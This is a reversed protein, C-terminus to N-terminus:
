NRGRARMETTSRSQADANPDVPPEDGKREFQARIYCLFLCTPAFAGLGIARPLNADVDQSRQISPGSSCAALALSLLIAARM